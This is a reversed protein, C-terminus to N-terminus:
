FLNEAVQKTLLALDVPTSELKVGGAEIKSFDLIEGILGLLLQSAHIVRDVYKKQMPNIETEQLLEVTGVIANLPTRIEHSMTALFVGKAMNASDARESAKQLEQNMQEVHQKQIKQRQWFFVLAGVLVMIALGSVLVIMPMSYLWSPISSVTLSLEIKWPGIEPAIDVLIPKGVTRVSVNGLRILPARDYLFVIQYHSLRLNSLEANLLLELDISAALVGKFERQIHLPYFAFLQKKEPSPILVVKGKNMANKQEPTLVSLQPRVVHANKAMEGIPKQQADYLSLVDLSEFDEIYNGADINWLAAPYGQLVEWRSALRSIAQIEEFLRTKTSLKFYQADQEALREIAHFQETRFAQWVALTSAFQGIMVCCPLLWRSHLSQLAIPLSYTLLCLASVMVCVATHLAMRAFDLWGLKAEMGTAYGILSVFVLSLICTSFIVIWLAAVGIRKRHLLILSVSTLALVISTNFAMRGPHQMVRPLNYTFFLQDIGLNISLLYELFTLGAITGLVIACGIAVIRLHLSLCLLAAGICGICLATNFQMAVFSPHLQILFLNHTFWGLLVVSTVAMLFFGSVFAQVRAWDVPIKAHYSWSVM